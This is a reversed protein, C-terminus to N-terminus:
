GAEKNNAAEREELMKLGREYDRQILERKAAILDIESADTVLQGVMLGNDYVYAKDAKYSMEGYREAEIEIKVSRHKPDVSHWQVLSNYQEYSLM